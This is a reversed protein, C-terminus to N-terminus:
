SRGKWIGMAQPENSNYSSMDIEKIEWGNAECFSIRSNAAGGLQGGEDIYDRILANRERARGYVQRTAQKSKLPSVMHVCDLSQIDVLANMVKGACLVDYHGADFQSYIRDRNKTTGDVYAVKYGAQRMRKALEQIIERRQVSIVAVRHGAEIDEMLFKQIIDFRRTSQILTKMCIHWQLGPNMSKQYIWGPAKVGTRIFTVFPDLKRGTNQTVVPGFIDYEVFHLHDEREDTGTLGAVAV